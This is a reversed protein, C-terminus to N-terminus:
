VPLKGRLVGAVGLRLRARQLTSHTANKESQRWFLSSRSKNKRFDKKLCARVMHLFPSASGEGTNLPALESPKLNPKLPM